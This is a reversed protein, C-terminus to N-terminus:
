HSWLSSAWHLVDMSANLFVALHTNWTTMWHPHVVCTLKLWTCFLLLLFRCVAESARGWEPHKVYSKCQPSQFYACKNIRSNFHNVELKSSCESSSFHLLWTGRRSTVLTVSDFPLFESVWFFWKRGFKKVTQTVIDAQPFFFTKPPGTRWLCSHNCLKTVLDLPGKFPTQSTENTTNARKYWQAEGIIQGGFARFIFIYTNWCKFFHCLM